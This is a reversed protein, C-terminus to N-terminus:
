SSMAVSGSCSGISGAGSDVQAVGRGSGVVAGTLPEDEAAAVFITTADLAEAGDDVVVGVAEWGATTDLPAVAKPAPASRTAIKTMRPAM